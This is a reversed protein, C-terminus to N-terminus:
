LSRIASRDNTAVDNSSRELTRLKAIELIATRLGKNEPRRALCWRLHPEAESYKGAEKLAYGLAFRVSYVRQDCQYAHELCALAQEKQHLDNYMSAQWSWTYVPPIGTEGHADRETVQAAYDILEALDQSRGLQRYRAWIERLTHWDPHMADLFDRAPMRGALLNVIRLQHPGSNAFCMAWQHMGEDYKGQVYLHKGVEFMVEGGFPRVRRAQVVYADTATPQDNGLFGLNALLVYGDGELPSLAVAQRAHAYAAALLKADVGVARDLWARLEATSEFGSSQVADRIQPLPMANVASQQALEFREVYAAALCVRARAFSPDWYVTQELHHEISDALPGRMAADSPAIKRALPSLQNAFLSSRAVGDRCYRDWHVAAVAPGVYAYISLSGLVSAVAACELWSPWSFEIRTRSRGADGLSLQSLRLVCVALALTVSLCAPIYWVFDVFSHVLSAALGAAAAGFCLQQSADQLRGLCLLCWTACLGLGAALLVVGLAGNETAIQLYGNEAHTYEHATPEELYVPCIEVHSGAGSGALGGHEIAQFNAAWVKRRGEGQDVAEISGSTLVDLRNTVQDYGHISLLGVLALALGTLGVLYKGDVLRWRLYIAGIAATAAATAIAGGKSMSLAIALLVLAIAATLAGTRVLGASSAQSRKRGFPTAQARHTSVLWRVLPGLGLALFDAFHNRNMFSGMAYADTKRYPHVYCWFFKGNSTFYQLLGFGAMLVAAVAVVNLLWEVDATTQLRQSLVIFWLGYSVLMALALTTERPALSITSWLGLHAATDGGSWLPLLERTRPSFWALWDGPIPVLQLVVLAVACLLVAHAATRTWAAKPLLSQRAFWAVATLGVLAVFVLRGVDHRGGFVFPAVCVTGM